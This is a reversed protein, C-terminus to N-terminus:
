SKEERALWKKLAEIIATKDAVSCWSLSDKRSMRKVFAALAKESGDRVKGAQHLEIWLGRIMKSQDDDALTRLPVARRAGVDWVGAATAKATLDEILKGATFATLEKSSTVKYGSLIARYTDDDLQLAGKLTHIMKIQWPQTKM